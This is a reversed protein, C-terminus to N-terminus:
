PTKADGRAAAELHHAALLLDLESDIDIGERSATPYAFTADTLFSRERRFHEWEAVCVSGSIRYYKPLEQRNKWKLEPPMFNAMSGDAPLPGSRLPHHDCEVVTLVARAKPTALQFAVVADVLAAGRLPNTPALLVVLDFRGLSAEASEMAHLVADEQQATDGSLEDPRRVARAGRAEAERLIADDDSTVVVADISTAHVAADVTWALLSKGALPRLNKGPIGKSGGRATVVALARRGATM